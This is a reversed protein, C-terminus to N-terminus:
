QRGSPKFDSAYHRTRDLISEVYHRTGPFGIQVVFDASNTMASGKSWKLVNARGANYDALAYVLPHDAARYRGLVKRLYWTGALTNTRPSVLHSMEFSRIKTAEAWEFAAPERIQMLGIEGANGRAECNFRSEQWILAKVLAPDLGHSHSAHLIDADFRHELRHRSILFLVLGDGLLVAALIWAWHKRRIM